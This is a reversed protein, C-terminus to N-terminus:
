LYMLLQRHVDGPFILASRPKPTIGGLLTSQNIFGFTVALKLPSNRRLFELKTSKYFPYASMVTDDPSTLILDAIIRPPM